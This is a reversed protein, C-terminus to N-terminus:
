KNRYRRRSRTSKSSMQRGKNIAGSFINVLLQSAPDESGAVGEFIGGEEHDQDEEDSADEEEDYERVGEDSAAGSPGSMLQAVDVRPQNPDDLLEVIFEGMESAESCMAPNNLDEIPAVTYGRGKRGRRIVVLIPEETNYKQSSKEM